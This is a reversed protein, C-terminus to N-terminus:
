VVTRATRCVATGLVSATERLIGYTHSLASTELERKIHCTQTDPQSRHALVRKPYEGMAVSAVESHRMKAPEQLTHTSTELMEMYVNKHSLTVMRGNRESLQADGCASLLEGVRPNCLWTEGQAERLGLRQKAKDARQAENEAKDQNESSCVLSGQGKM